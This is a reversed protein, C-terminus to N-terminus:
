RAWGGEREWRQARCVLVVTESACRGDDREAERVQTNLTFLGCLEQPIAALAKKQTNALQLLYLASFCFMQDHLVDALREDFSYFFIVKWQFVLYCPSYEISTKNLNNWVKKEKWKKKKCNQARHYSLYQGLQWCWRPPPTLPCHLALGTSRVTPGWCNQNFSRRLPVPRDTRLAFLLLKEFRGSGVGLKYKWEPVGHQLDSSTMQTVQRGLDVM